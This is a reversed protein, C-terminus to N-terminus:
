PAFAASDKCINTTGTIGGYTQTLNSAASSPSASPSAAAGSLGNFNSGVILTISGAAVTPDLKVTSGSVAAKLTNAAALQSASSYEIV